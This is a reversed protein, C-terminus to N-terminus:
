ASPFMKNVTLVAAILAVVAVVTLRVTAVPIEAGAVAKIALSALKVTPKDFRAPSSAKGERGSYTTEVYREATVVRTTVNLAGIVVPVATTPSKATVTCPAAAAAGVAITECLPVVTSGPTISNVIAVWPPEFLATVIAYVFLAVAVPPFIALEPPANSLKVVAYWGLSVITDAVRALVVLRTTVM